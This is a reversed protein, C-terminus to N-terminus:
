QGDGTEGDTETETSIVNGDADYYTITTEGEEYDTGTQVGVSLDDDEDAEVTVMNLMGSGDLKEFGAVKGSRIRRNVYGDLIFFYNCKSDNYDLIRVADSIGSLNGDTIRSIEGTPTIIFENSIIYDSGIRLINPTISYTGTKVPEYLMEGKSNIVTVHYEGSYTKKEEETIEAEREMTHLGVALDGTQEDISIDFIEKDMTVSGTLQNSDINYVDITYGDNKLLYAIGDFTILLKKYGDPAVYAGGENACENLFVDNINNYDYGKELPQPTCMGMCATSDMTDFQMMVGKSTRKFEIGHIMYDYRHYVYTDSELDVYGIGYGSDYLEYLGDSLFSIKLNEFKETIMMDSVQNGSSDVIYYVDSDDAVSHKKILFKNGYQYFIEYTESDTPVLSGLENGDKDIFKYTYPETKSAIIYSVGDQIMFRRNDYTWSYEDTKYLVNGDMDILGLFKHLDPRKYEVWVRDESFQFANSIDYRVLNVIIPDEEEFEIEIPEEEKGIMEQIQACGTTLLMIGALMISILRKKM